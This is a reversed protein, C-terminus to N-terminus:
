IFALHTFTLKQSPHLLPHRISVTCDLSARRNNFLTGSITRPPSIDWAEPDILPGLIPGPIGRPIARSSRAPSTPSIPGAPGPSANTNSHRPSHSQHPRYSSELLHSPWPARARPLYVFSTTLSNPYHPVDTTM